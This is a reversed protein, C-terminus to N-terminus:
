RHEVLDALRGLGRGYAPDELDELPNVQQDHALVPPHGGAPREVQLLLM